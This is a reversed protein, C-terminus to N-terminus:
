IYTPRKKPFAMCVFQIRYGSPNLWFFVVSAGALLLVAASSLIYILKRKMNATRNRYVSLEEQSKELLEKARRL